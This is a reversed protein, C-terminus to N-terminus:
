NESRLKNSTMSVACGAFGGAVGSRLIYDLSNKNVRKKPGETAGSVAISAEDGALFRPRARLPPGPEELLRRPAPQEMQLPQSSQPITAAHGASAEPM